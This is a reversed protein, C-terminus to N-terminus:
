QGQDRKVFQALSRYLNRVFADESEPTWQYFGKGTKPGIEGCEVKKQILPNPEVSNDLDPLIYREIQAMVDWGDQVEALEVPGVFALRRGFGYKVAIDIDEATAIGQDIIYLAERLLAIQMRNAIFGLAEKQAIIPKKGAKLVTKYVMETTEDSTFESRVIEVLPMLHPPYFYHLVLVKDKRNTASALSSPMLSSTNSALITHKPCHADLQKFIYQKVELKEF